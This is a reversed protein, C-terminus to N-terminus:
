RSMFIADAQLVSGDAPSLLQDFNGMYEFGKERVHQYIDNFLPQGEYLKKFSVEIILLRARAIFDEGGSIVQEEYGQVDIKILIEEEARMEWAVDDLRRVAVTESITHETFPFSAKHLDTMELLSSSPSFDNHHMEYTLNSAGLAFNFAHFNAIGAMNRQLTSFPETLPEFSLIRAEPLIGHILQAFEGTNAGIDFITRIGLSTLWLYRNAESPRFRLAAARDAQRVINLGVANFPKRVLTKALLRLDM